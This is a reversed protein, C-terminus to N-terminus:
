ALEKPLKVLIPSRAIKVKPVCVLQTIYASNNRLMLPVVEEPSGTPALLKWMSPQTLLSIVGSLMVM